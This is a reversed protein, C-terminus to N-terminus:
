ATRVRVIVIGSGGSAYATAGSGTNVGGDTGPIATGYDGGEAYTV